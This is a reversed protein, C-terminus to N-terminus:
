LTRRRTKFRHPATRVALNNYWETFFAFNTLHLQLGEFIHPLNIQFIEQDLNSGLHGGGFLNQSAVRNLLTVFDLAITAVEVILNVLVKALPTKGLYFVRTKRQRGCRRFAWPNAFTTAVPVTAGERSVFAGIASLELVQLRVARGVPPRKGLRLGLNTHARVLPLAGFAREYVVDVVLVFLRCEAGGALSQVLFDEVLSQLKRALHLRLTARTAERFDGKAAVLAAVAM